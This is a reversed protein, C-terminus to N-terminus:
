RIEVRTVAETTPSFACTYGFPTWAGVEVAIQGGGTVETQGGPTETVSVQDELAQVEAAEPHRAQMEALAAAECADLAASRDEAGHAPAAILAAFLAAILRPM